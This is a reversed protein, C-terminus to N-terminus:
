SRGTTSSGPPTPAREDPDARQELAIAAQGEYSAIDRLGAIAAVADFLWGASSTLPSNVGSRAVAVVDDWHRHNRSRVPLDAPVAGGYAADLHAAAMRWPQRIATTGGPLPVPSLRGARTFGTLDAVLM